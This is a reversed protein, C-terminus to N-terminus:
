ITNYQIVTHTIGKIEESTNYNFMALIFLLIFLCYITVPMQRNKQCVIALNKQGIIYGEQKSIHRVAGSVIWM